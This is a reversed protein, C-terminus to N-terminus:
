PFCIFSFHYGPSPAQNFGRGVVSTSEDMRNFYEIQQGGNQLASSPLAAALLGQERYRNTEREKETTRGRYIETRINM